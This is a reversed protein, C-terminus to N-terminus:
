LNKRLIILSDKNDFEEKQIKPKDSIFFNM